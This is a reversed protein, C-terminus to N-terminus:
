SKSLNIVHHLLDSQEKTLPKAEQGGDHLLFISPIFAISNKKKIKQKYLYEYVYVFFELM